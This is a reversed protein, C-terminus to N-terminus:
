NKVLSALMSTKDESGHSSGRHFNIVTGSLTVLSGFMMYALEKNEDPISTTFLLFGILVTSTVIMIDLWYSANKSLYSAKDAKQIEINMERSSNTNLQQLKIEELDLERMKTEAELIKHKDEQTIEKTELDIGTTKRVGEVIAKEGYKKAMDVLFPIGVSALLGLAM